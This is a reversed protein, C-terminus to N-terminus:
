NISESLKRIEELKLDLVMELKIVKNLTDSVSQNVSLIEDVTCCGMDLVAQIKSGENDILKALSAHQTALSEILNAIAQSQPTISPTNEPTSM